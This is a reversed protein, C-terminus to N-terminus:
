RVPRMIQTEADYIQAGALVDGCLWLEAFRATGDTLPYTYRTFPQGAFAEPALGQQHQITLWNQGAQTTFAAPMQAASISPEGVRWGRLNLWAERTEASALIIQKRRMQTYRIVVLGCAAVTALLVAALTRLLNRVPKKM